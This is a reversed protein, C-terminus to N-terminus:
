NLGSTIVIQSLLDPDDLLKGTGKVVTTLPDDDITVPVKTEKEVLEKLGPLLSGWWYYIGDQLLDGILEPPTEEIIEKIADVIQNLTGGIAERIEGSSIQHVRYGPQSIM